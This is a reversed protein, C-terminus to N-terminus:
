VKLPTSRGGAAEGLMAPSFLSSPPLNPDVYNAADYTGPLNRLELNDPVKRTRTNYVECPLGVRAPFFEWKAKEERGLGPTEKRHSVVLEMKRADVSVKIYDSPYVKRAAEITKKICARLVTPYPTSCQVKCVKRLTQEANM